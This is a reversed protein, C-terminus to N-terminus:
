KTGKAKNERLDGSEKEKRELINNCRGRSGILGKNEKSRERQYSSSLGFYNTNRTSNLNLTSILLTRELERPFILVKTNDQENTKKPRVKQTTVKVKRQKNPPSRSSFFFSFCYKFPFISRRATFDIAMAWYHRKDKLEVCMTYSLPYQDILWIPSLAHRVITLTTNIKHNLVKEYYVCVCVCVCVSIYIGKNKMKKRM